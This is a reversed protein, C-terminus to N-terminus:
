GLIIAYLPNLTKYFLIRLVKDPSEPELHVLSFLVPFHKVPGRKKQHHPQFKCLFIM